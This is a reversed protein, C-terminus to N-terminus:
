PMTDQHATSLIWLDRCPPLVHVGTKREGEENRKQGEPQKQSAAGNDLWAGCTDLREHPRGLLTDKFRSHGERVEVVDCPDIKLGLVVVQRIPGIVGVSGDRRIHLRNAEADVHVVEDGGGVSCPVQEEVHIPLGVCPFERNQFRSNSLCHHAGEYSVTQPLQDLVAVLDTDLNSLCDIFKHFLAEGFTVRHECACDGDCLNREGVEVIRTFELLHDLCSLSFLLADSESAVLQLACSDLVFPLKHFCFGLTEGGDFASATFSFSQLNAGRCLGFRVSSESLRAHIDVLEEEKFSPVAGHGGDEATLCADEHAAQRRSPFLALVAESAGLLAKDDIRSDLHCTTVRLGELPREM